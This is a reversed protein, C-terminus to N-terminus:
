RLLIIRASAIDGSGSVLRILYVGDALTEGGSGYGAWLISNQGEAMLYIYFSLRSYRMTGGDRRWLHFM